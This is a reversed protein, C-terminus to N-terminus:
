VSDKEFIFKRLFRFGKKVRKRKMKMVEKRNKGEEGKKGGLITEEKNNNSWFSKGNLGVFVLIYTSMM